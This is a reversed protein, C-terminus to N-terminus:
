RGRRRRQRLIQLVHAHGQQRVVGCLARVARLHQRQEGPGTSHLELQLSVGALGLTQM